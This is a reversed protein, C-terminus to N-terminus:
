IERRLDGGETTFIGMGDGAYAKRDEAAVAVEEVVGVGRGGADDDFALWMHKRAERGRAGSGQRGVGSEQSTNERGGAFGGISEGMDFAIVVLSGGHGGEM